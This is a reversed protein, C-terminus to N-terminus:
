TGEAFDSLEEKIRALRGEVDRIEDATADIHGQGRDVFPHETGGRLRQLRVELSARERELGAKIRRTVDDM